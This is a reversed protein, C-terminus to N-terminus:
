GNFFRWVNLASLFVAFDPTLSKTYEEFKARGGKPDFRVSAVRSIPCGNKEALNKYASVQLRWSKSLALPTKWDPLTLGSDGKIRVVADPTGRYGLVTDVLPQEVLVVEEVFEDFWVCFSKFYGKCNDPVEPIWLRLAKAAVLEHFDTGRIAAALLM